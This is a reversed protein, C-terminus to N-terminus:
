RVPFVVRQREASERLLRRIDVVNEYNAKWVNDGDHEGWHFTHFTDM